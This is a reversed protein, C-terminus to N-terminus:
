EDLWSAGEWAPAYTEDVWDSVNYRHHALMLANMAADEERVHRGLGEVLAEELCGLDGNAYEDFLSRMKAILDDDPIQELTENKVTYFLDQLELVTEVFTEQSVYPSGAFALVLDEVVGGGFEIRGTAQLAELRGAVLVQVDQASLSLGYRQLVPNCSELGRGTSMREIQAPDQGFPVIM